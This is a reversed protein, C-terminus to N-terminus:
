FTLRGSLSQDTTGTVNSGSGSVALSGHAGAFRGTGGSVVRTGTFGFLGAADPELFGTEEIGELRDGNAATLTFSGRGIAPRVTFDITGSNHLAATGLHSIQCAGTDDYDASALDNDNPPAQFVLNTLQFTTRCVGSLPTTGARDLSATATTSPAAPDSGAQSCGVSLLVLSTLLVAPLHRRM